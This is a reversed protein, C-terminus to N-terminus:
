KAGATSIPEPGCRFHSWGLMFSTVNANVCVTVKEGRCCSWLHSVVTHTHTTSVFSSSKKNKQRYYCPHEAMFIFINLGFSLCDNHEINKKKKNKRQWNHAAILMFLWCEIHLSPLVLLKKAVAWPLWRSFPSVSSWESPSLGVLLLQRWVNGIGSAASAKDSNFMKAAKKQCANNSFRWENPNVLDTWCEKRKVLTILGYLQM